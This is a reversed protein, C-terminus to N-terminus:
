ACRFCCGDSLCRTPTGPARMNACRLTPTGPVSREIPTGSKWTRTTERVQFALSRVVLSNSNWTHSYERVQSDTDGARLTRDTNRVELHAHNGAGSIGNVQGYHGHVFYLVNCRQTPNNDYGYPLYVYATNTRAAGTGEAYDRTNYDIRVVEGLHEAEQGYNAPAPHTKSILGAYDQPRDPEPPLITKLIRVLLSM